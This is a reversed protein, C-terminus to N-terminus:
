NLVRELTEKWVRNLRDTSVSFLEGEGIKVKMQKEDITTGLVVYPVDPFLKAAEAPDQVEIVFTEPTENFLFREPMEMEEPLDLQVGCDNGFCMQAVTAAVGGEGVAKASKIRGTQVAQHYVNNVQNAVASDVAPLENGVVGNIKYYISGGMRPDQKGLLILTSGTEKIDSSITNEVDPIPGSVSICVYPLVHHPYKIADIFTSSFSDKGSIVPSDFIDMSDCVGMVCRRMLGMMEPTRVKGSMYNNIWYAEDPNGGHAVFRAMALASTNLSGQYPDIYSLRPAKAAAEVFGYSEGLLPMKVLADNPCDLNVGTFPALATTGQVGYDYRRQIEEKSCVDVEALIAELTAGWDIPTGPEVENRVQKVWTSEFKQTPLGNGLFDYSLDVLKEESNYVVLRKDDTFEGLITAGVNYRRFIEMAKEVNEPSIAAVAREQSESLWKKWGELGETKLPIEGLNVRVGTKSGMEGVASAFGAAGCDTIAEILGEKSLELVADFMRKEELPNGIQVSTSLTEATKEHMEVSSGTAGHIGDNGTKGGFAIVKQGPKPHGKEANEKRTIAYTTFLATSRSVFEPDVHIGGHFVPIGVPNGYSGAGEICGTLMKRPDICGPPIKSKDLDVPAFGYHDRGAIPKAGKGAENSDRWGGGLGTQVGGIPYLSTPHIHTEGKANIAYGDYFEYFGANDGFASLVKGDKFHQRARDKIMKFLPDVQRGDVFLDANTTTHACHDSWAAGIHQLEAMTMDRGMRRAEIQVAIMQGLDLFVETKASLNKLEDSNCDRIPVVEVPNNSGKIILTEPKEKVVMEVTANYLKKTAEELKKPDPNGIFNYETSSSAAPLDIGHLTAVRKLAELQPDTMQPQFGVRVKKNSDEPAPNVTYEETLRNCLVRTALADAQEPSVGELLYVTSTEVGTLGPVAMGQFVKRGKVDFQPDKPRIIVEQIAM